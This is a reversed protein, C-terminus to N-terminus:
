VLQLKVTRECVQHLGCYHIFAQRCSCGYNQELSFRSLNVEFLYGIKFFVSIKVFHAMESSFYELDIKNLNKLFKGDWGLEWFVHAKIWTFVLSHCISRINRLLACFFVICRILKDCFNLDLIASLADKSCIWLVKSKCLLSHLILVVLWNGMILWPGSDLVLVLLQASRDLLCSSLLAAFQPWTPIKWGM